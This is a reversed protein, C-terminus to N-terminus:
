KAVTAAHSNVYHNSSHDITPKQLEVSYSGEMVWSTEWSAMNRGPYKV